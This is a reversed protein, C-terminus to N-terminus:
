EYHLPMQKGKSLNTRKDRLVNVGKIAGFELFLQRCQSESWDRPIQGVFMKCEEESSGDSSDKRGHLDSNLQGSGTAITTTEAPLSSDVEKENNNEQLLLEQELQEEEEEGEGEGVQEQVEEHKEKEKEEITESQSQDLIEQCSSGSSHPIKKSSSFDVKEEDDGPQIEEATSSLEERPGHNSENTAFLDDKEDNPGSCDSSNSFYLSLLFHLLFYPFFSSFLFSFFSQSTLSPFDFFFLFFNFTSFCESNLSLLMGRTYHAKKKMSLCSFRIFYLM